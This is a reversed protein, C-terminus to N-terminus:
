CQGGCHGASQRGGESAGCLLCLGDGSFEVVRGQAVEGPVGAAEGGEMGTIVFGGPGPLHLSELQEVPDAVRVQDGVDGLGEYDGAHGGSPELLGAVHRVPLVLDGLRQCGVVAHVTDRQQDLQGLGEALPGGHAREFSADARRDRRVGGCRTHAVGARQEGAGNGM